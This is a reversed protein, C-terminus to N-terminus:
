LVEAKLPQLMYSFKEVILAKRAEIFEDFHALEWLKPEEPILHLRLYDRHAQPTPFRSPAFWQSPPTDNKGVFGNEEATLLMCNAIQDRQDARYRM